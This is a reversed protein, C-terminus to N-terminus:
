ETRRTDHLCLVGGIAIAPWALCAFPLRLENLGDVFVLDYPGSPQFDEYNHFTVPRAIGLAGLHGQTKAIWSPQTEVSEVEGRAYAALIQTSAGAGFEVIRNSREALERLLEADRRSVDGVYPIM